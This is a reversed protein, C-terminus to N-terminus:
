LGLEDSIGQMATIAIHFFESLQIGANEIEAMFARSCNRAFAKSKYKKKLSKVKVSALKNDPTM